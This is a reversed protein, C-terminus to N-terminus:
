HQILHVSSPKSSSVSAQRHDEPNGLNELTWQWLTQDDPLTNKILLVKRFPTVMSGRRWVCKELLAVGAGEQVLGLTSYKWDLHSEPWASCSLVHAIEVIDACRKKNCAPLM